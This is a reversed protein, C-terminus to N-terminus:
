HPAPAGQETGLNSRLQLFALAQQATTRVVESTDAAAKDQLLQPVDPEDPWVLTIVRVLDTRLDDDKEDAALEILVRCARDTYRHALVRVAARRIDPDNNTTAHLVTNFVEPRDPWREGLAALILHPVFPRCAQPMFVQRLEIVPQEGALGSPGLVDLNLRRHVERVRGLYVTIAARM